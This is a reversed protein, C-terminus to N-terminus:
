RPSLVVIQRVWVAAFALAAGIWVSPSTLLRGIWAIRGYRWSWVMAMPAIACAVFILPGLPHWRFSDVLHGSALAVFSRTMGTFPSAIGVRVLLAPPIWSPIGTFRFVFAISVLCAGVIGFLSGYRTSSGPRTV